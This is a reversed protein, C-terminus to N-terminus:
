SLIQLAFWYSRKAATGSCSNLLKFDGTFLIPHVLHFANRLLVTTCLNKEIDFHEKPPAVVVCLSVAPSKAARDFVSKDCWNVHHTKTKARLGAMDMQHRQLEDESGGSTIRPRSVDCKAPQAARGVKSPLQQPKRPPKEPTRAHMLRCAAATTKGRPWSLVAFSLSLKM